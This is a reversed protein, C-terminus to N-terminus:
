IDAFSFAYDRSLSNFFCKKISEKDLFASATERLGKQLFRTALFIEYYECSVDTGSNRKQYLQM